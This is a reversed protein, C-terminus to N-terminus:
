LLNSHLLPAKSHPKEVEVVPLSVHRFGDVSMFKFVGLWIIQSLAQNFMGNLVM